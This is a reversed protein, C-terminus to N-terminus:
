SAIGFLQFSLRPALTRPDAPSSQTKFQLNHAKRRSHHTHFL